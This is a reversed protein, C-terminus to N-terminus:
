KVEKTQVLQLFSDKHAIKNLQEIVPENLEMVQAPPIVLTTQQNLEANVLDQLMIETRRFTHVPLTPAEYLIVTHDSPYFKLLIQILVERYSANTSLQTFTTDGAICVQWLILYAATDIQRKYFMFQSTEYHACGFEGPDIQLDAYLCDEASIGPEVKSSLGLSAVQQIAQHPVCAFVSPHGYFAAVVKNGEVVKDVICSVMANYSILRSQGVQYFNQLSQANSNMELLWQEVLGDSALVYLFEAEQIYSRVIPSIHAGLTMGTGVCVLSGKVARDM